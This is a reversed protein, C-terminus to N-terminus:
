DWTVIVASHDSIQQFKGKMDVSAEMHNVEAGSCAKNSLVHDLTRPRGREDMATLMTEGCGFTPPCDPYMDDLGFTKAKEAFDSWAKSDKPMNFDGCVIRHDTDKTAEVFRNLADKAQDHAEWNESLVDKNQGVGAELVQVGSTTHLNLISIKTENPGELQVLLSGRQCFHWEFSTQLSFNLLETKTIPYRSLVALGNTAFSAPWVPWRGSYSFFKLGHEAAKERIEHVHSELGWFISLEQLCVVDYGAVLEAFQKVRDEQADYFLAPKIRRGIVTFLMAFPAMLFFLSGSFGLLGLLFQSGLGVRLALALGALGGAWRFNKFSNVGGLFYIAFFANFLGPGWIGSRVTSSLAFSAVLVGCGVLGLPVALSM